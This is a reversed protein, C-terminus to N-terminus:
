QKAGMCLLREEMLHRLQEIPETTPVHRNNRDEGSIAKGGFVDMLSAAVEALTDLIMAHLDATSEADHGFEHPRDVSVCLPLFDSKSYEETVAELYAYHDKNAWDDSCFSFIRPSVKPAHPTLLTVVFGLVEWQVGLLRAQHDTIQRVDLDTRLLAQLLAPMREVDLMIVDYDKM